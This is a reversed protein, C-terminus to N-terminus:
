LNKSQSLSVKYEEIRDNFILNSLEQYLSNFDFDEAFPIEVFNKSLLTLCYNQNRDLESLPKIHGDFNIFIQYPEIKELIKNTM